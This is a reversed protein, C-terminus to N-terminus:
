WSRRHLQNQPGTILLVKSISGRTGPLTCRPLLLLSDTIRAPFSASFPLLSARYKSPESLKTTNSTPLRPDPLDYPIPDSRSPKAVDAVDLIPECVCGRATTRRSGSSM